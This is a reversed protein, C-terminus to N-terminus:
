LRDTIFKVMEAQYRTVKKFKVAIGLPEARVIEGSVKFHDQSDPMNLTLTVTQGVSFSERTEIFVGGVSLNQIFDRFARDASSYDIPVLCSKRKFERKEESEWKKLISLLRKQKDESLNKILDLLQGITGGHGSKMEPGSGNETEMIRGPSDPQLLAPSNDGHEVGSAQNEKVAPKEQEGQSPQIKLELACEAVIDSTIQRIGRVYGTLLAHDCIINILRPYGKSFLHIERLSGADFVSERSGATKMRYRVYAGAESETLPDINYNITIRQRLARNKNELLIDNFEDQGVFFINLLKTNQAEINSLVRVEDLQEHDLRQAEDIILLVKRGNSHMEILFKRFEILFEGKSRFSQDMKFSVAIYKLFDFLELDPDPIMAALTNKGLSNILAHVLTTKGTGVDGTLLLFGRNDLIGYKLVALAEKHKEGMWLFEPDTSIQFPKRKLNYHSLYM